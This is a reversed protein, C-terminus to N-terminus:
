WSSTKSATNCFIPQRYLDEIRMLTYGRKHVLGQKVLQEFENKAQEYRDLESEDQASLKKQQIVKELESSITEM